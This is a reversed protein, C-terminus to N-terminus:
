RRPGADCSHSKGWGPGGNCYDHGRGGYLQDPQAGGYLRDNGPGGHCGDQGPGMVCVDNGRGGWCGDSGTGHRCYDDGPGGVCDSNRPGTICVDNNAGGICRNRRAGGPYCTDREANGIFKDSGAGLYITLPFPLREAVRVFDGSPGMQVEISSARRTSCVAVRHGRTFRCGHPQHRAMNGKVVIKGGKTSLTLTSGSHAGYVVIKGAPTAVSPALALSLAMASLVGVLLKRGPTAFM